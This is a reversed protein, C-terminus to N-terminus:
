PQEVAERPLALKAMYEIAGEVLREPDHEGGKTRDILWIALLTRANAANGSNALPSRSAIIKAWAEDFANTLLRTTDLEFDHETLLSALPM